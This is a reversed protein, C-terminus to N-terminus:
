DMSFSSINFLKDPKKQGSTYATKFNDPTSIFELKSWASTEYKIAFLTVPEMSQIYINLIITLIIVLMVVLMTFM